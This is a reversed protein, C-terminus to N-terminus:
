ELESERADVDRSVTMGDDDHDDDDDGVDDTVDRRDAAQTLPLTAALLQLETMLLMSM